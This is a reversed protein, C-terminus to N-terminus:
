PDFGIAGGSFTLESGLFWLNSTSKPVGIEVCRGDWLASISAANWGMTSWCAGLLVQGINASISGSWVTSIGTFNYIGDYGLNYAWSSMMLFMTYQVYVSCISFMYQVYVSCISFMYQVHENQLAHASGGLWQVWKQGGGARGGRGTGSRRRRERRERRTASRRGSASAAGAPSMSPFYLHSTLFFLGMPDM